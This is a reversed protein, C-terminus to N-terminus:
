PRFKDCPRPSFEPGSSWVRIAEVMRNTQPFPSGYSKAGEAFSPFNEQWFIKRGEMPRIKPYSFKGPLFIEFNAAQASSPVVLNERRIKHERSHRRVTSM